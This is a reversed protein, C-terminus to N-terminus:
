NEYTEGVSALSELAFMGAYTFCIAWSGFWSGDERQANKIYRVAKQATAEIEETRYDPFYKRFTSLGLLVATTCEPYSYEIMINCALYSGFVEAPNLLELWSPGRAPEYSAFGGDSNQMTLLVDVADELREKNITQPTFSLNQLYIATKLGEATCDSVTYGQDRTSFPWAGKSTQRYCKEYEPVNRKIQCDDLFELIKLVSERNEENEALGTECVAQAIFATDWLQSGNTGNMMMGEPGIWMFDANRRVHEKFERSERGYHYYVVLWNLAKNVPGLDLFFTNEDERRILDITVDLAHKRLRNYDFPIKEYLGLFQNVFDMLKSHPLFLDVEAVNNRHQTWIINEYPEVYLEERLQATFTTLKPTLRRAYIYGMPLYVMRTHVWWRGPHVPLLHPLARRNLLLTSFLTLLRAISKYKYVKLLAIAFWLEPPIPNVGEWDYVGMASLWFKGWAPAGVAGGYRHLTARAKIMAPHDASLGLIRLTVYNLATGFVTSVGEIHIGWGGDDVNARHLLYRIIEVRMREPIPTETIYYTIILGPLLFMPGGYEGAWHGDETQLQKYYEYGIRASELPTEPTPFSSSEFPLGLHYKDAKTQPWQVVQEDTELYHWTQAGHEVKLRWRSLDSFPPTASTSLNASAYTETTKDFMLSPTCAVFSSIRKHDM